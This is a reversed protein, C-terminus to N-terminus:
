EVDININHKSCFAIFATNLIGQEEKSLSLELIIYSQHEINGPVVEHYILNEYIAPVLVNEVIITGERTTLKDKWNMKEVLYDLFPVLYNEEKKERNLVLTYTVVTQKQKIKM